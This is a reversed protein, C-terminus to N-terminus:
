RIQFEHCNSKASWIYTPIMATAISPVKNVISTTAIPWLSVGQAWSPQVLLKPATGGRRASFAMKRNDVFAVAAGRRRSVKRRSFGGLKLGVAMIVDCSSALRLAAPKVRAM